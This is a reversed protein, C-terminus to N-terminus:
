VALGIIEVTTLEDTYVVATDAADLDTTGLTFAAETGIVTVTGLRAFADGVAPLAALALAATAYGVNNAPAVELTLTGAANIKLAVAGYTDEPVVVAGLATGAAEVARQYQVGAISFTLAATAVHTKTSGIALGGATMPHNNVLTDRIASILSVSAASEAAQAALEDDTVNLTTCKPM